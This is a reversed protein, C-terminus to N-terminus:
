GRVPRNQAREGLLLAALVGLLGGLVGGVATNLPLRPAVPEQPLFAPSVLQVWSDQVETRTEMEKEKLAFIIYSEEALQRERVLAALQRFKEALETQLAHVDAQLAAILDDLAMAEARLAELVAGIDQTALAAADLRGRATIVENSSLLELPLDSGRADGRGQLAEAQGILVKLVDRAALYRGLTLNKTQLAEGRAGYREYLGFLNRAETLGSQRSLTAPYQINDVLGVGTERQFTELNEEAQSLRAQATTLSARIDEEVAVPFGYLENVLAVYESAWTNLLQQALGPDHYRFRIHFYSTDGGVQEAEIHEILRGPSRQEPPLAEGMAMVVRAELEPNRLLNFLTRNMERSLGLELSSRLRSDFDADLKPTTALLTAEVEYLPPLALSILFGALAGVLAMALVVPWRRLVIRVYRGLDITDNM